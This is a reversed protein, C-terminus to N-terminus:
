GLIEMLLKLSRGMADWLANDMAEHREPDSAYKRMVVKQLDTWIREFTEPPPAEEEPVLTLLAKMADRVQQAGVMSPYTVSEPQAVIRKAQAIISARDM